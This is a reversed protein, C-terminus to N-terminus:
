RREPMRHGESCNIEEEDRGEDGWWDKKDQERERRERRETIRQLYKRQETELVKEFGDPFVLGSIVEAAGSVFERLIRLGDEKVVETLRKTTARNM